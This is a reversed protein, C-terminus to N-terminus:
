FELGLKILINCDTGAQRYVKGYNNVSTQGEFSDCISDELNKFKLFVYCPNTNSDDCTVAATKSLKVLRYETNLFPELGNNYKVSLYPGAWKTGYPSKLNQNKYLATFAAKEKDDANLSNDLTNFISSKTDKQYDDVAIGIDKTEALVKDVNIETLVRYINAGIIISIIAFISLAIRADLGFMAAKKNKLLLM